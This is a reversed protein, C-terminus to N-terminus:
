KQKMMRNQVESEAKVASLYTFVEYLDAIEASRLPTYGSLNFVGSEAM